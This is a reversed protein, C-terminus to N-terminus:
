KYLGFFLRQILAQLRQEAMEWLSAASLYIKNNAASLINRTKTSLRANEEPNDMWLLINTDLLYKM